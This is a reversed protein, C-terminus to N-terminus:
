QNCQKPYLKCLRDRVEGTPMPSFDDRVLNYNDTTDKLVQKNSIVAKTAAELLEDREKIEKDKIELVAETAIIKTVAADRDIILKDKEVQLTKNENELMAIRANAYVFTFLYYLIVIIILVIIGFYLPKAKIFKKIAEM